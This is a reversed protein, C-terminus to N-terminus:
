QNFTKKLCQPEGHSKAPKIDHGTHNGRNEDGNHGKDDKGHNQQPDNNKLIEKM